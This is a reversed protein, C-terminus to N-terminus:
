ASEGQRTERDGAATESCSSSVANPCGPDRLKALLRGLERVEDRTMHAFRRKITELLPGRVERVKARGQDTLHTRVVRRDACCRERWILAAQELRDLLRTIDPVRNLLKEGIAQCAIGHGQQDPAALVNLVNFQQPTIDFRQFFKGHESWLCEYSRVLSAFVERELQCHDDVIPQESDVNPVRPSPM